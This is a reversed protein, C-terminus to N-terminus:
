PLLLSHGVLAGFIVLSGGAVLNLLKAAKLSLGCRMIGTALSLGAYWTAAAMMVGPISWFSLTSGGIDGEAAVTALALYPIITMPNTLTLLLASAYAVRMTVAHAPKAVSRAQLITRIGLGILILASFLRIAKSWPTLAVSVADAGFIAAAAFIGQSTAAGFGSVMGYRYGRNLSQQVCILSVPGFPAAVSLGLVAGALLAAAM